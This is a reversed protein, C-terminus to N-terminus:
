EASQKATMEKRVFGNAGATFGAPAKEQLATRKRTPQRAPGHAKPQPCTNCHIADSIGSPSRM